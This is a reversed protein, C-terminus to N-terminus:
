EPHLFMALSILKTSWNGSPIKPLDSLWLFQWCLYFDTCSRLQCCILFLVIIKTGALTSRVVCHYKKVQLNDGLRSSWIRCRIVIIVTAPLIWQLLLAWMGNVKIIGWKWANCNNGNQGLWQSNATAFNGHRHWSQLKQKRPHWITIKLCKITMSINTTHYKLHSM